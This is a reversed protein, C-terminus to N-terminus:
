EDTLVGKGTLEQPRQLPTLTPNTWVGQLDPEGWPTRLAGTAKADPKVPAPSPNTQGAVAVSAFLAVVIGLESLRSLLSLAKCMRSEMRARTSMMSSKAIVNERYSRAWQFVRRRKRSGPAGSSEQCRMIAKMVRTSM